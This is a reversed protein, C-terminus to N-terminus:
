QGSISKAVLQGGLYEPELEFRLQTMASGSAENAIVEMQLTLNLYDAIARQPGMQKQIVDVYAKTDSDDRKEIIWYDTGGQRSLAKSLEEQSMDSFRNPGAEEQTEGFTQTLAKALAGVDRIANDWENEWLKTYYFGWLRDNTEDFELSMDFTLGNYQATVPISYVGKQGPVLDQETLGLQALVTERSEGLLASYQEYNEPYEKEPPTDSCATMSLLMAGLLICAFLNKTKKM